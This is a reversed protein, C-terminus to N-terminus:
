GSLLSETIGTYLIWLSFVTKKYIRKYTGTCLSYEMHHLNRICLAM